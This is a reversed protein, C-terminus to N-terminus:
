LIKKCDTCMTVAEFHDGMWCSKVEQTEPHKCAEQVSAIIREAAEISERAVKVLNRIEQQVM